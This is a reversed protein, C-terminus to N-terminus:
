LGPVAAADLRVFDLGCRLQRESWWKVRGWRFARRPDPVVGAVKQSREKVEEVDQRGTDKVHQMAPVHRAKDARGSGKGGAKWQGQTKM